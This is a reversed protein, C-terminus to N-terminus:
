CLEYGVMDRTRVRMGSQGHQMNKHGTSSFRCDQMGAAVAPGCVEVLTNWVTDYSDSNVVINQFDRAKDAVSKGFTNPYMKHLLEEDRKCPYTIEDRLIRDQSYYLQAKTAM